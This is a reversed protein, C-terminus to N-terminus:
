YGIPLPMNSCCLFPVKIGHALQLDFIWASLLFLVTMLTPM